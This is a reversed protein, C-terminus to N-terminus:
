DHGITFLCSQFAGEPSGQAAPTQPLEGTEAGTGGTEAGAGEQGIGEEGEASEPASKPKRPRNVRAARKM